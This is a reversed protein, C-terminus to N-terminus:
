SSYLIAHCILSTRTLFIGIDAFETIEKWLYLCLNLDHLCLFSSVDCTWKQVLRGCLLVESCILMTFFFGFFILVECFLPKLKPNKQQQQKKRAKMTTVSILVQHPLSAPPPLLFWLLTFLFFFGVTLCQLTEAFYSSWYIFLAWENKSM